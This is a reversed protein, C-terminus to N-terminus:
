KEKKAFSFYGFSFERSRRSRQINTSIVEPTTASGSSAPKLRNVTTNHKQIKKNTM